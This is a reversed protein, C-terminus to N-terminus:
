NKRALALSKVEAIYRITEDPLVANALWNWVPVLSARALVGKQKARRPACTLLDQFPRCFLRLPTLTRDGHDRQLVPRLGEMIEAHPLVHGDMLRDIEVALALRSAVHGPLSSLFAKLLGTKDASLMCVGFRGRAM